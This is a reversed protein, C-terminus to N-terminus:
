WGGLLRDQASVPLPFVYGLLVDIRGLMATGILTGSVVGALGGVIAGVGAMLLVMPVGFWAGVIGACTGPVNRGM